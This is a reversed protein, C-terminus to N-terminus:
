IRNNFFKDLAYELLEEVNKFDQCNKNLRAAEVVGDIALFIASLSGIKLEYHLLRNEDCEIETKTITYGSSESSESLLKNVILKHFKSLNSISENITEELKQQDFINILWQDFFSSLDNSIKTSYQITDKIMLPVVKDGKVSVLVEPDPLLDGNQEYYHAFSYRDDGIKKVILPMFAGDTNDIKLYNEGKKIMSLIHFFKEKEKIM